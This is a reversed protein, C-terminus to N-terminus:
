IEFDITSKTRFNLKLNLILIHGPPSIPIRALSLIKHGCPKTPEIGVGPVAFFGRFRIKLKHRPSSELRVSETYTEYKRTGFFMPVRFYVRGKRTRERLDSGRSAGLVFNAKSTQAPSLVRVEM